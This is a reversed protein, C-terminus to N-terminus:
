PRRVSTGLDNSANGFGGNLIGGFYVAIAALMAM